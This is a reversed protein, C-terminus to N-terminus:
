KDAFEAMIDDVSKQEDDRKDEVQLKFENTNVYGYNNTGLFAAIMPNMKGAVAMYEWLDSMLQRMKKITDLNEAARKPTASNEPEKGYEILTKRSMGLVRAFGEMTPYVDYKICDDIYQKGRAEIAQPDKRDVPPYNTKNVIFDLYKSVAGNSKKHAQKSIKGGTNPTKQETM